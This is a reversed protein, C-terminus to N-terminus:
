YAHDMLVRERLECGSNSDASYATPRLSDFAKWVPFVLKSAECLVSESSFSVADIDVPSALIQVLLSVLFPPPNDRPEPISM